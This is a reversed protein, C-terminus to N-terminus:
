LLRAPASPSNSLPLASSLDADAINSSRAASLTRTFEDVSPRRAAIVQSSPFALLIGLLFALRLNERSKM